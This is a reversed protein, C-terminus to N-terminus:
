SRIQLLRRYAARADRAFNSLQRRDYSWDPLGGALGNWVALLEPWTRDGRQAVLGALRVHKDSMTRHKSPGRLRLYLAAVDTVSMVPDVTMKIRRAVGYRGKPEHRSGSLAIHPAPVGSVIWVTAEPARWGYEEALRETTVRLAELLGGIATRRSQTKAGRTPQRYRVERYTVEPSIKAAAYRDLGIDPGAAEPGGKLPMSVWATPPGDLAAQRDMWEDLDPLPVLDGIRARLELVEPDKAAESALATTIAAWRIAVRPRQRLAKRQRLPLHASGVLAMASVVGYQVDSDTMDPMDAVYRDTVLRRWLNDSYRDGLASRVAEQVDDLTIM